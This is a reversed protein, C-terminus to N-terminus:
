CSMKMAAMPPRGNPWVSAKASRSAITSADVLPPARIIDTAGIICPAAWHAVKVPNVSGVAVVPSM